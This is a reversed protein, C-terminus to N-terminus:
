RCQQGGRILHNFLASWTREPAIAVSIPKGGVHGSEGTPSRVASMLSGTLSMSVANVSLRFTSSGSHGILSASMKLTLRCTEFTGHTSPEPNALAKKVNAANTPAAM